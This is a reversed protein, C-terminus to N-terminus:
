TPWCPSNCKAYLWLHLTCRLTPLREKAKKALEPSRLKGPMVVDTFLLDIKLGSNIVAMANDANEATLVSYGLDRLLDVTAERVADDDEVVLVVEGRGVATPDSSPTKAVEEDRRTRPLYIRVSTGQGVESYIKIHGGSQKVFGYVMSLGLGTGEGTAKTTFFPDFVKELLDAPIGTGTDTVALMVYQGATVEAHANAYYDDLSANGAEITLKGTHDMAHRANIALNLIVNEVQAADALCNWLGGSIVTEIEVTEGLTRRIMDDMGRVLKGINIPKPELTQQRGFALLQSALKAGRTVGALANQVRAQARDNEPLDKQLLQLNSGIVQLLNNFDHAVGGTLQGVAEMKQSQVLLAEMEAREAMAADVKSKLAENFSNLAERAKLEQTLDYAEIITGVTMGDEDKMPSATFGVPYFSGDKHVFVEEGQTQNNEPFARDIECEDIPFPRGDPYTHHVVDHLLRGQTEEFRYGTLMEAAANMYVCHQRDDMMFISMTTNSLIADLRASAERLAVETQKQETIDQIAAFFVADGDTSILQLHVAVHYSSSNKREHVTEFDLSSQRGSTLPTIMKLFQEEDIEPKIDWPTLGRLEEMSYGLNERAGRNVLSFKFDVSSFIYIESASDEVIRGLRENTMKMEYQGNLDPTQIGQKQLM